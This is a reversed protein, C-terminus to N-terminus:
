YFLEDRASTSTTSHISTTYHLLVVIYHVIFLICDLYYQHVYQYERVPGTSYPVAPAGYVTGYQYYHVFHYRCHCDM